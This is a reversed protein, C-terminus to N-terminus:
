SKERRRDSPACIKERRSVRGEILLWVAPSKKGGDPEDPQIFGFGKQHNFSKVTGQAM